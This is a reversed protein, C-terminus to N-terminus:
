HVAHVRPRILFTSGDLSIFPNQEDAFALWNGDVFQYEPASRERNVLVRGETLDMIGRSLPTLLWEGTRLEVRYALANALGQLSPFLGSRSGPIACLLQGPPHSRSCAVCWFPTGRQWLSLVNGEAPTLPVCPTAPPFPIPVLTIRHAVGAGRTVVAEPPRDEPHVFAANLELSAPPEGNLIGNEWLFADNDWDVALAAGHGVNVRRIPDRLHEVLVGLDTEPGVERFAPPTIPGSGTLRYVLTRVTVEPVAWDEADLLPSNALIVLPRGPGRSLEWLLPGIVPYRSLQSAIDVTAGPANSLARLVVSLPYTRRDGLFAIEPHSEPPLKEALEELISAVPGFWLAAANATVDVAVVGRPLAALDLRYWAKRLLENM